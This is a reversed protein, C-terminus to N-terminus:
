ANIFSCDNAFVWGTAKNIKERNDNIADKIADSKSYGFGSITMSQSARNLRANLYPAVEYTLTIAHGDIVAFVKFRDARGAKTPTGGLYVIYVTNISNTM